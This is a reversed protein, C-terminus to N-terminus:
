DDIYYTRKAFRDKNWYYIVAPLGDRYSVIGPQDITVSGPKLDIRGAAQLGLHQRLQGGEESIRGAYQFVFHQLQGADSYLIVLDLQWGSVREKEGTYEFIGAFDDTGDNNFDESVWCERAGDSEQKQDARNTAPDSFDGSPIKLTLSQKELYDRQNQSLPYEECAIASVSAFVLLITTALVLPTRNFM